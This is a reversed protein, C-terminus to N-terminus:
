GGWGTHECWTWGDDPIYGGLIIVRSGPLLTTIVPSDLGPGARVNLDEDAVIVAETGSQAHPAAATPLIPVLALALLGPLALLKARRSGVHPIARGLGRRRGGTLRCRPHNTMLNM